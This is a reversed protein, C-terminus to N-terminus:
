CSGWLRGGDGDLVPEGHVRRERDSSTAASNGQLGREAILCRVGGEGPGAHNSSALAVVADLAFTPTYHCLSRRVICSM